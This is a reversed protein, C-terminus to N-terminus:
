EVRGKVVLVRGRQALASSADVAWHEEGPEERAAEAALRGAEELALASGGLDHARRSVAGLHSLATVLCRRGMPRGDRQALLRGTEVARRAHALSEKTRGAALLMSSRMRAAQSVMALAGNSIPRRDLLREAGELAALSYEEAADLHETRAVAESLILLAFVKRQAGDPDLREEPLAQYHRHAQEALLRMLDLRGSAALRTRFEDLLFEMQEEARSRTQSEEARAESAEQENRDARGAERWAIGGGIALSAVVAAVAALRRRRQARLRERDRAALDDFSVGLMPAVIRLLAERRASRGPLPWPRADAALPEKGEGFMPGSAASPFSSGPDGEVLLLLVHDARGLARFREVERAIWPSDPTRPSCVVVLWDSRDLAREIEGSLSPAAHLEARDLFV